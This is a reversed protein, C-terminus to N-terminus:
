CDGLPAGGAPRHADCARPFATASVADVFARRPDMGSPHRREDGHPHRRRAPAQRRQRRPDRALPIRRRARRRRHELPQRAAPRHVREHSAVGVYPSRGVRAVSHAPQLFCSFCSPHGGREQLWVRLVAVTSNTLPVARQKRGKGLCRIHAGTDLHIDGSDLGTLESVRLGTQTALALLARDRRGEWRGTDPADLLADIETATLFSVIAKDFRKQPIALVRAIVEAHEPHCLAAYRFLSRV